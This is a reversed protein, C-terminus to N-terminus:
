ENIDSELNVIISVKFAIGAYGASAGSNATPGIKFGSSEGGVRHDKGNPPKKRICLGHM